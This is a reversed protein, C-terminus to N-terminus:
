KEYFVSLGAISAGVSNFIMDLDTDVLSHQNQANTTIDLLFEGIEGFVGLTVGLFFMFLYNYLLSSSTNYNVISKIIQYGLLTFAYIGFLHLLKDFWENENYYEIYQGGFNHLFITLLVVLQQYFTTDFALKKDIYLFILYCINAAILGILSRYNNDIFFVVGLTSSAIFYIINLILKRNIILFDGRM